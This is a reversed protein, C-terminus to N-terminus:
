FRYNFSLVTEYMAAKYEGPFSDAIGDDDIDVLEQTQDPYDFYGTILGLGWRNINFLFGGTFGYKNGTDVFQPGRAETSRLPSQDFSFGGLVTVWDALDYGLGVAAKAANSWETPRSINQGFYDMVSDIYILRQPASTSVVNSYIFEFGEFRSWFTYEADVSVTLRDTLAYAAGAGLSPPLKLEVEMDGGVSVVEGSVFMHDVTNLESSSIAIKDNKPLYFRNDLEGKITIDFPLRASFGLTLRETPKLMAGGVLGFGWGVGDNHTFEPIKDRPRDSIIGERPNDTLLFDNYILDARLLQIGVGLSLKEPTFERAATLQFAVVDLDARYQDNPLDGSLDDHYARFDALTPDYLRWQIAYDFPQYISFGVVTEGWVPFRALFGASPHDRIEHQNFLSFGNVMGTPYVNDYDDRYVYNPTIEHRNHFLGLTGGLQNDLLYAYGAPNYYAATWDSAIARFAGGVGRAHTGIGTSEFGGAILATTCLVLVIVVTVTFRAIGM